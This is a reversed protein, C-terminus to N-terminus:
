SLFKSKDEAQKKCRQCCDDFYKLETPCDSIDPCTPQSSSVVMQNGLLSCKFTTCNDHSFWTAGVEYTQNELVCKEQVCEGCCKGQSVNLKFGIACKKLPCVENEESINPLGNADYVCKNKICPKESPWIEGVKKTITKGNLQFLCLNKPPACIFEDCCLNTQTQEKKVIEYFPQDCKVPKPPCTLKDCVIVEKPCCGTTEKVLKEGLRLPRNQAPKCEKSPKCDCVYSTCNSNDIIVKIFQDAACKPQPKNLCVTPVTQPVCKYQSCCDNASAEILVDKFGIQCVAGNVACQKKTCNVKGSISCECDTCKNPQWKDGVFHNNDDCPSCERENVCKGNLNLVKGNKCFCGDIPEACNENFNQTKELSTKGKIMECTKHCNCAKYEMDAPCEFNEVCAGKKWDVCIGNRSCERAYAALHSCAGKQNPGTKCMDLQCMSVYKLANVILHCQGFTTQDLLQLCPDNDPPLPICEDKIKTETVCKEKLNLAPEDALWTQLIENLDNSKVKDLHKPNPKIDDSPDGNCNGCLGEVNSGYKVSPIKISFSLDNFVANVEVSSKVLDINVGKGREENISVWDKKLPLSEVAIGDVLTELSDPKQTSRQLHIIHRGYLIHLSQTCSHQENFSGRVDMDYEINYTPCPGLSVYVQFTHENPVQIDRSLLYTCNADFTFNKRDYTIYQSRGFGDCVCDKCDNVTVCKEGKRVTGEPCYCGSFCTGPLFPCNEKSLTDCSPECRRRYCDRHVLPAPCQVICDYKSRWTDFQLNADAAMCETVYNQLLSCKCNSAGSKLCECATELCKSIFHDANVAHSCSEFTEDKIKNCMDWAIDQDHQSCAHSECKPKSTPDRWWGDGFDVTSIVQSGNPLRKDDNPHENYYGCLGDVFSKYKSSIGVKVDGNEDLRVWIEQLHSVYLISNGLKSITFLNMQSYISKELQDITYEYDDLKVTADSYLVVVLNCSKDTITLQKRCTFGGSSCNKQVSSFFILILIFIM